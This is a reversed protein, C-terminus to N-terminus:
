LPESTELLTASDSTPQHLEHLTHSFISLLAESLFFVNM